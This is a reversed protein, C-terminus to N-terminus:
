SIPRNAVYNLFGGYGAGLVVNSFLVRFRLPVLSLNIAQACPIAVMGTYM